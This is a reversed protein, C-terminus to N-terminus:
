EGSRPRSEHHRMGVSRSREKMESEHVHARGALLEERLSAECARIAIWYTADYEEVVQFTWRGELVNRGIISRRVSDAEARHGAAELLEAGEAFQQDAHGTLQHFEYLHGRAREITELAETIKGVAKVTEDSAGAPRREAQLWM